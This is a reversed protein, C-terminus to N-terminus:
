TACFVRCHSHDVLEMILAAILLNKKNFFYDKEEYLSIESKDVSTIITFRVHFCAIMTGLALVKIQADLTVVFVAMRVLHFFKAEVQVVPRRALLARVWLLRALKGYLPADLRKHM